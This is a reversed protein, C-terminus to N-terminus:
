SEKDIQELRRKLIASTRTEMINKFEQQKRLIFEVRENLLRAGDLIGKHSLYYSYKHIFEECKQELEVLLAQKELEIIREEDVKKKLSQTKSSFYIKVNEIGIIYHIIYHITGGLLVFYTLPGITTLEILQTLVSVTDM